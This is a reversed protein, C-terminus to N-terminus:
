LLVGKANREARRRVDEASMVQQARGLRRSLARVRARQERLAAVQRAEMFALDSEAIALRFRILSNVLRSMLPTSM